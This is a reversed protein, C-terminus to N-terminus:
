PCTTSHSCRTQCLGRQHRILLPISETITAHIWFKVQSVSLELMETAGSSDYAYPQNDIGELFSRIGSQSTMRMGYIGWDNQENM